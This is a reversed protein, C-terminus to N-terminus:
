WPWTKIINDLSNRVFHGEIIEPTKCTLNRVRLSGTDDLHNCTQIVIPIYSPRKRLVETLFFRPLVQRRLIATGDPLTQFSTMHNKCFRLIVIEKQVTTM